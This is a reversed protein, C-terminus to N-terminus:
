WHRGGGYSTAHGGYSFRAYPDVRGGGYNGGAYGGGHTAPRAAGYGGGYPARSTSAAPAMRAPAAPRAAPATPAMRPPAVRSVHAGGAQAANAAETAAYSNAGLGLAKVFEDHILAAEASIAQYAQGYGSFAAATAASVEDAAAPIVGTTPFAATVNAASVASGIVHLRGAAAELLEPVTVVFSM